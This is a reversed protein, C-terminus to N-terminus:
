RVYELGQSTIRVTGRPYTTGGWDAQQMELTRGVELAIGFGMQCYRGSRAPTFIIPGDPGFVFEISLRGVGPDCGFGPIREGAKLVFVFEGKPVFHVGEGRKLEPSIDSENFRALAQKGTQPPYWGLAAFSLRRGAARKPAPEARSTKPKPTSVGTESEPETRPAEAKPADETGAGSEPETRPTETGPADVGAAEPVPETRPAGAKPTDGMDTGSEPETRPTETRPADAGAAEPVPETRPAEAKPADETGAGSEPETRPTETGPADVGTAELAPETRPAGAKPTDETGAGSEPETRPTETGPADVGAAEPVPETRPAGAKPTDETDAGSEPETRPTGTRPAGAGAESEPEARLTDAEPMEPGSEPPTAVPPELGLAERTADDLQGTDPLGVSRQFRRISGRTRWGSTGDIPGPDFGKETLKRQIAEITPDFEARVDAGYSCLLLALALAPFLGPRSRSAGPRVRM